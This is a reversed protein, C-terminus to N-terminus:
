CGRMSCGRSGNGAAGGEGEGDAGQEGLCDGGIGSVLDRIFLILAVFCIWPAIQNRVQIFSLSPLGLDSRLDEILNEMRSGYAAAAEESLTDSEGQFWIVARIEGGDDGVAEETRRVLQSYLRSGRQWEAIATGGEACPVLGIESGPPLFPLLAHAFPMAPGVGCAKSIDIDSHLPESAPDWAGAASFRFISPHPLCETPVVGDWRRDKVGGRGSMNSQGALIFVSRRSM